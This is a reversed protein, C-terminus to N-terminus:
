GVTGGLHGTKFSFGNWDQGNTAMHPGLSKTSSREKLLLELGMFNPFKICCVILDVLM